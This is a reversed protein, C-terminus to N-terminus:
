NFCIATGHEVSLRAVEYFCLWAVKERWLPGESDLLATIGDVEADALVGNTLHIGLTPALAILERLLAMSSGVIAGAVREQEDVLVEPFDIPVYFGECDSHAILHSETQFMQRQLAADETPDASEPFPVAKSDPRELAHAAVRRLYHVFSYPFGDLPARDVLEPLVTPEDHRPLGHEALLANVADLQGRLWAAGDPGEGKLAALLGVEISLGM